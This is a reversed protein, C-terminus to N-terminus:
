NSSVIFVNLFTAVLSRKMELKFKQESLLRDRHRAKEQRTIKKKKKPAAEALVTETKELRGSSFYNM